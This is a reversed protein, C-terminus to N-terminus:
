SAAIAAQPTKGQIRQLFASITGSGVFEPRNGGAGWWRALKASFPRIASKASADIKLHPLVRFSHDVSDYLRVQLGARSEEAMRNVM